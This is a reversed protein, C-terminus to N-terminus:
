ELINEAFVVEDLPQDWSKQPIDAFVQCSFCVGISTLSPNNGLLKDYFWAWRGIRKWERTFARWPVIILSNEPILINETSQPLVVVNKWQERFYDTVAVIDVEDTFPEYTILTQFKKQSLKQILTRCVEDSEAAKTHPSLSAIKGKVLLRITNKDM